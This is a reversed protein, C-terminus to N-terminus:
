NRRDRPPNLLVCTLESPPYLDRLMQVAGDLAKRYTTFTFDSDIIEYITKLGRWEDVDVQEGWTREEITVGYHRLLKEKNQESSCRLINELSAVELAYLASFMDSESNIEITRM